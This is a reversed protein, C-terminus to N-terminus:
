VVFNRFTLLSHLFGAQLFITFDLTFKLLTSSSITSTVLLGHCSVVLLESTHETITFSQIAVWSYTIKLSENREIVLERKFLANAQREMGSSSTKKCQLASFESVNGIRSSHTSVISSKQNRTIQIRRAQLGSPQLIMLELSYLGASM